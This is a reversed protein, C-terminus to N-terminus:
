ALYLEHDGVYLFHEDDHEALFKKLERIVEPVDDVDDLFDQYDEDGNDRFMHPIHDPDNVLSQCDSLFERVEEASVLMLLTTEYPDIDFVGEGVLREEALRSFWLNLIPQDDWHVQKGICGEKWTGTGISAYTETETDEFFTYENAVISVKKEEFLWDTKVRECWM